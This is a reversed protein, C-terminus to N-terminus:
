KPRLHSRRKRSNRCKRVAKSGVLPLITRTDWSHMSLFGLGKTEIAPPVAAVTRQGDSLNSRLAVFVGGAQGHEGNREIAARRFNMRFEDKDLM